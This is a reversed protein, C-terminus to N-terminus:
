IRGRGWLFAVVFFADMVVVPWAIANFNGDLIALLTLVGAAFHAFSFGFILADQMTGAAVDKGIWGIIALSLILSGAVHALMTGVVDTHTGFIGLVLAPAFLFGLGFLVEVVANAIILTRMKMIFRRKKAVLLILNPRNYHRNSSKIDYYIM